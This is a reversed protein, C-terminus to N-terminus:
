AAWTVSAARMAVWHSPYKGFYRRGLRRDAQAYCPLGAARSLNGLVSELGLYKNSIHFALVGGKRM